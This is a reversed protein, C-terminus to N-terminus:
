HVSLPQAILVAMMQVQANTEYLASGIDTGNGGWDPTAATPSTQGPITDNVAATKGGIGGIDATTDDVSYIFGGQYICGYSLVM